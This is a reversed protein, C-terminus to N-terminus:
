TTATSLSAQPILLIHGHTDMISATQGTESNISLPSNLLTKVKVRTLLYYTLLSLSRSTPPPSPPHQFKHSLRILAGMKPLVESTAAKLFSIYFILGKSIHVWENM